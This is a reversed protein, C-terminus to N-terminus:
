DDYREVLARFTMIAQLKINVRGVNSEEFPVEPNDVSWRLVKRKHDKAGAQLESFDFASKNQFTSHHM